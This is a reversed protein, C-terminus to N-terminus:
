YSAIMDNDAFAEPVSTEKMQLQPAPIVKPVSPVFADNDKISVYIDSSDYGAAEAYPTNSANYHPSQQPVMEAKPSQVPEFDKSQMPMSPIYEEMSEKSDKSVMMKKAIKNAEDNSIKNSNQSDNLRGMANNFNSMSMLIAIMILVCYIIIVITIFWALYGCWMSKESKNGSGASICTLEFLAFLVSPVASLLLFFVVTLRQEIPIDSSSFIIFFCLLAITLFIASAAYKSQSTGFFINNLADMFKAM